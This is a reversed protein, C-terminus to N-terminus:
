DGNRQQADWFARDSDISGSYRYQQADHHRLPQASAATAGAVLAVAVIASRIITSMIIEKTKSAGPRQHHGSANPM